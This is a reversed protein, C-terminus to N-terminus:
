AEVLEEEPEKKKRGRKKGTTEIVKRQQHVLWSLQEMERYIEKIADRLESASLDEIRKGRWYRIDENM